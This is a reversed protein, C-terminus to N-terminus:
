NMAKKWNIEFGVSELERALTIKWAGGEDLNTWVIGGFDTPFELPGNTLTCVRHRGLRAMFYGLELLVNQRARPQLTDPTKGGVDDPTLLVVAFGVDSNAEIKEIITRSQSAQESLIVAEFDLREIFRALTQQAAVDHGHVIFIKRPTETLAITTSGALPVVTETSDNLEDHLWRIASNLIQVASSKGETVFERAQRAEERPNPGDYSFYMGGHDLSTADAYRRFEVTQHGFVSTLTGEITAEMAKQEPSWRQTLTTADFNEIESILRTLRTIGKKMQEPTLNAQILAAPIKRTAM